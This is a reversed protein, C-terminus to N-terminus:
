EFLCVQCVLVSHVFSFVSSLSTNLDLLICTGWERGSATTTKDDVLYCRFLHPVSLRVSLYNFLNSLPCFINLNGLLQAIFVVKFAQLM